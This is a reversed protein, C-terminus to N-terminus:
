TATRPSHADLTGILDTSYQEDYRVLRAVTDEYFSRV